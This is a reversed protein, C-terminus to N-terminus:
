WLFPVAKGKMVTVSFMQRISVPKNTCVLGYNKGNLRTGETDNGSLHINKGHSTSFAVKQSSWQLPARTFLASQVSETAMVIEIISRKLRSRGRGRSLKHSIIRIIPTCLM